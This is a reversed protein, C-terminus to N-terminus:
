GNSQGSLKQLIILEVEGPHPLRGTKRKSYVLEDGLTVEFNGMVQTPQITVEGIRGSFQM